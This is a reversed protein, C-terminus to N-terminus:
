ATGGPSRMLCRESPASRTMLLVTPFDLRLSAQATMPVDEFLRWSIRKWRRSRRRAFLGSEDASQRRGAVRDAEDFFQQRLIGRLLRRRLRRTDRHRPVCQEERVCRM